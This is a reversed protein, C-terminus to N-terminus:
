RTAAEVVMDCGQKWSRRPAVTMARAAVSAVPDYTIVTRDPFYDLLTTFGSADMPQGIMVLPPRGAVTPLQGHVDYVVTTDPRDVAHETTTPNSTRARAEQDADGPDDTLTKVREGTCVIRGASFEDPTPKM